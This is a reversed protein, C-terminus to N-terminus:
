REDRSVAGNSDLLPLEFREPKPTSKRGNAWDLWIFGAVRSIAFPKINVANGQNGGLVMLNGHKDKGVVFGVHGGGARDFVVVCGYAPKDLRTGTNLWDKARYWYKPLARDAERACHAVFTGCGPTEDDTWWAGLEILWKRITSNHEKGPIERTGIARRALALWTPESSQPPNQLM